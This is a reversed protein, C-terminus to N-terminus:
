YFSTHVKDFPVIEQSRSHGKVICVMGNKINTNGKTDEYYTTISYKFKTPLNITALALVCIVFRGQFPRPWTM